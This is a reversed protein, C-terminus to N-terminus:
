YLVHLARESTDASELRSDQLHDRFDLSHHDDDNSGTPLQLNEGAVRARPYVRSKQYEVEGAVDLSFTAAWATGTRRQVCWDEVM